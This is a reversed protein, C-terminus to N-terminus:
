LFFNTLFLKNSKILKKSYIFRWPRGCIKNNILDETTLNNDNRISPIEKEFYKQEEYFKIIKFTLLDFSKKNIYNNIKALANDIIYDDGDIFMIYKGVAKKIGFNRAFSIGSNNISFFYANSIGTICDKIFSISKDKSGDDIIILEMNNHLQSIISDLCQKVYKENNYFTVIISLLRTSNM